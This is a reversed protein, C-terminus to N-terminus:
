SRIVPCLGAGWGFHTQETSAVVPTSSVSTWYALQAQWVSWSKWNCLPSNPRKPCKKKGVELTNCPTFWILRRGFVTGSIPRTSHPKFQTLILPCASGRAFCRRGRRCNISEHPELHHSKLCNIMKTCYKSLGTKILGPTSMASSLWTHITKDSYIKNKATVFCFNEISRPNMVTLRVILSILYAWFTKFRLPWWRKMRKSRPRRWLLKWRSWMCPFNRAELAALRNGINPACPTRPSPFCPFRKQKSLFDRLRISCARARAEDSWGHGQIKRTNRLFVQLQAVFHIVFSLLQFSM